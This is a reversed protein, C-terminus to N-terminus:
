IEIKSFKYKSFKVYFKYQRLHEFILRVYKKYKEISRNYICINDLYAMYFIDLYDKLTENIYAQFIAPTNTLDFFMIIYEYYGYRTRFATKWEDDLRIRIRHYIDRIDLKIYIAADSLRNIFNGILSLTYRNKITLKNLSRYDIYLRL